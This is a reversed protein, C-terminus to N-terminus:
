SAKAKVGWPYPCRKRRSGPGLSFRNPGSHDRQEEGVGECTHTPVPRNDRSAPKCCTISSVTKRQSRLTSRDRDSTSRQAPPPFDFPSLDAIRRLLQRCTNLRIRKRPLGVLKVQGWESAKPRGVTSRDGTRNKKQASGKPRKIM